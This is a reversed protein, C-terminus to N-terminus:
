LSEITVGVGDASLASFSILNNLLGSDNMVGSQPFSHAYKTFSFSDGAHFLSTDDAVIVSAQGKASLTYDTDFNRKSTCDMEQILRFSTNMLNYANGNSHALRTVTLSSSTSKFSITDTYSPDSKYVTNGIQTYTLTAMRADVHYIRVGPKTFGQVGNGPYFSASDKANLNTPTYFELLLYEDFASGNWGNSTPILICEGTEASPKLAIFSPGTVVLPHVWGLAFKSYADHDIINYDMMDVCGMPAFNRTNKLSSAAYYDDLGMLHGTEHIYTHADVSGSGYAEYMFDYSGWSFKWGVPSLPSATNDLCSYTYAWFTDGLSSYSTQSYDPCSYIVWIGDIYGDGDEDFDTLSTNYNKKYSTVAQNILYEVGGAENDDTNKATIESPTLGSSYWGAVTGKLLLQGYSSKYYYSAVSEYGTDSPDGFFTKFIAERTADTATSEYGKIIIPLVLLHQTGTSKLCPNETADELQRQVYASSHSSFNTGSRSAALTTAGYSSGDKDSVLLASSAGNKGFISVDCSTLFLALLPVLFCTLRTTKKM